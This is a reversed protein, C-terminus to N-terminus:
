VSTGQGQVTGETICFVDGEWVEELDRAQAIDGPLAERAQPQGAATRAGM